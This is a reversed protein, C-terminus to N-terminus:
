PSVRAPGQSLAMPGVNHAACRLAKEARNRASRRGYLRACFRTVLGVAPKQVAQTLPSASSLPRSLSGLGPVLPGMLVMEFCTLFLLGFGVGGMVVMWLVVFAWPGGHVLSLILLFLGLLMALAFLAMPVQPSIPARYEFRHPAIM